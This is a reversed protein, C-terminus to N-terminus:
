QVEQGGGGWRVTMAVKANFGQSNVLELYNRYEQDTINNLRADFSLWDNVEYEAFLNVLRYSDTETYLTQDTPVRTQAAVFQVEGGLTLREQMLRIGGSVTIQDAPISVLPQGTELNDGRIRHARLGAFYGGADYVGEFEFGYIKAQAINQYQQAGLILPGFPPFFVAAGAEVIEIYDEVDNNFWSAKARLRDGPRFVDNRKLNLGIEHTTAIEPKLEPNPLLPFVPFAHNGSILTETVSPARYGEAYTGYIQIGHLPTQEFPSLGLTLRPSTRSGDTEVDGSELNYSDYRLALLAEFWNSYEIRDQIYLGDAIREGSPTLAQANADEDFTTAEDKFWDGGYTIAHTVGGLDFRSTNYIDFGTTTVEYGRKAGETATTIPTSSFTPPAGAPYTITKLQTQDLDEKNVYGSAHFDVWPNSPDNITYKATYTDQTVTSDRASGDPDADTYEIWDNGNRIYGLTLEHFDMPRVRVKGFGALVDYGTGAITNGDGDEYEERERRVVNGIVDIANARAAATSSVLWGDQNSEYGTKVSGAWTEGPRLFDDASKTEFSVLGGIAGSGYINSVPGRVVTVLTLLEPDIWFNTQSGHQSRNFNQRAGDIIVAVRGFDQLGRINIGTNNGNHNSTAVVGPMGFFLEDPTSAQLQELEEPGIVSVGAMADVATEETKSPVITITDLGIVPGEQAYAPLVTM